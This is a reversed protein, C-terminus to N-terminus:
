PTKGSEVLNGNWDLYGGGRGLPVDWGPCARNLHEGCQNQFYSRELVDQPWPRSNAGGWIANPIHYGALLAVHSMGIVALARLGIKKYARGPIAGVGREVLTEGRDNTFYRLAALSGFVVAVHLIDNLPLQFYTGSNLVNMWGGAYSYFGLPMFILGELVVDALVAYGFAVGVLAPARLGPFRRKAARMVACGAIVLWSLCAVYIAPVAIIPWAPALGPGHASVVGPLEFIPAGRNFLYSNYGFWTQLYASAPDWLSVTLLGLTLLGDWTVAGRRRWPRVLLWYITFVAAVPLVVQSVDLVTRMWAPPRDPGTGVEVFNPGTIWKVLVYVNLAMFLAGIAAWVTVPAVRESSGLSREPVAGLPGGSGAQQSKSVTRM